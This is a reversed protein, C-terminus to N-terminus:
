VHKKVIDIFKATFNDLTLDRVRDTSKMSLYEWLKRNTLVDLVKEVADDADGYGLGHEGHRVIDSWAGGSEHVVVPLGRSMAEAVVIGWHENITSHLFVKSRDMVKTIDRRPADPILYVDADANLSTATKFGLSEALKILRSLYNMSTRTSAGGFVYLKVGKVERRISPFVEGIVWHYRKEESFRGVMVVSDMRTDFAPIENGTLISLAPPLPPNLVEPEEGYIDKVIDATWASNTLVVSAVEFPNERVYRPSIKTYLKWYVNLPFKGYRELIYPDEGYYLGSGRLKPDISVELPFHIYEILKVGRKVVEPILPKYASEDTFVLGANYERLAKVGVYGVLLRLYLGFAKLELRTSYRTFRSLDIGYWEPYKEVHITVPSVLVPTLGMLDFTHTVSACVLQGGGPRNWYHHLVLARRSM